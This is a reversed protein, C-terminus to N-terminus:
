VPEPTGALERLSDIRRHLHRREDSVERERVRTTDTAYGFDIQHHLMRRQASLRAEEAELLALERRLHELTAAEVSRTKAATAGARM